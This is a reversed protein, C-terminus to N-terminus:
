YGHSASNAASEDPTTNAESSSTNLEELDSGTAGDIAAEDPQGNSDPLLDTFAVPAPRAAPKRKKAPKRSAIKKVAPKKPAKAAAVPKKTAAELRSKAASLKSKAKALKKETKALKAKITKKKM